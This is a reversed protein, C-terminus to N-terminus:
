HTDSLITGRAKLEDCTAKLLELVDERRLSTKEWPDVQVPASGNATSELGNVTKVSKSEAPMKRRFMWAFLGPM